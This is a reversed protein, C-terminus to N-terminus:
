PKKQRPVADDETADDDAATSPHGRKRALLIALKNAVILCQSVQAVFGLLELCENRPVALQTCHRKYLTWSNICAVNLAWYFIRRYWKLSKHDIRYMASLMDFLDVGGMNANYEVIAAPCNVDVFKKSKCDCRKM